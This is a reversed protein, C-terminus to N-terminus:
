EDEGKLTRVSETFDQLDPCCAPGCLTDPDALAERDALDAPLSQNCRACTLDDRAGEAVRDPAPGPFDDDGDEAIRQAMAAVMRDALTDLREALDERSTM